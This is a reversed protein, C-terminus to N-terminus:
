TSLSAFTFSTTALQRRTNNIVQGRRAVPRRAYLRSLRRRLHVSRECVRRPRAGRLAGGNGDQQPHCRRRRIKDGYVTGEREIDLLLDRATFRRATDLATKQSLIASEFLAARADKEWLRIGTTIIQYQMVTSAGRLDLLDVDGDLRAALSQGLEWTQLPALKGEILVALDIDSAPGAEGPAQSGFLYIALLSPLAQRLSAIIAEQGVIDIVM